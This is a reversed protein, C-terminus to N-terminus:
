AYSSCIELAISWVNKKRKQGRNEDEFGVELDGSLLLMSNSGCGSSEPRPVGVGCRFFTLDILAWGLGWLWSYVVVNGSVVAYSKV